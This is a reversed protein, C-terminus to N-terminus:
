HLFQKIFTGGYIWFYSYTIMSVPRCLVIITLFRKFTIRSLGTIMIMVDAPAMPSLMNLIFITEYTRSALQKDYKQIKKEDIFLLIFPRGFRRVLYFLICSGLIIGTFNLIFGLIPGFTLFGVVTTVGGPIIPIVVQIIQIIFFVISGLLIHNKILDALAQPNNFIDLKGILYCVFLISLIISAIGIGRILKKLKSHRIGHKNM